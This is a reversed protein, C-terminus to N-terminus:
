KIHHVCAWSGKKKKPAAKKEPTSEEPTIVEPEVIEPTIVEPVVPGTLFAGNGEIPGNLNNLM